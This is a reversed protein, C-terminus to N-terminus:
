IDENSEIEISEQMMLSYTVSFIYEAIYWRVLNVYARTGEEFETSRILDVELKVRILCHSYQGRYM